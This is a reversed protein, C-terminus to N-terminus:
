GGRHCVEGRDRLLDHNGRGLECAHGACEHRVCEGVEHREGSLPGKHPDDEGGRDVRHEELVGDRADDVREPGLSVCGPDKRKGDNEGTGDVDGQGEGCRAVETGLRQGGDVEVPLRVAKM